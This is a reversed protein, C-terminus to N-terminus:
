EVEERLKREIVDWVGKRLPGELWYNGAADKGMIPIINRLQFKKSWADFQIYSPIGPGNTRAPLDEEGGDGDSGVVAASLDTEFFRGKSWNSFSIMEMTADGFIPPEGAREMSERRLAALSEVQERTGGETMSRRVAHAVASLPQSLIECAPLFTYIETAANSIFAKAAPLHEASLVSALRFANMIRITKKSSPALTSAVFLRTFWAVLVDNDSVFAKEDGTSTKVEASARKRLNSVTAAPICLVRSESSYRYATYLQRLKFLLLHWGTVLRPAHIYPATSTTGFTALPDNDFGHFGPIESYREQLSLSWSHYIHGGGTGDTLTHPLSLSVLTADTFSVIHLALQPENSYIYDYLDKPGDARRALSDFDSPSTLVSPRQTVRPM